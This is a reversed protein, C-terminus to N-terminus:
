GSLSSSIRARISASRLDTNSLYNRGSVSRHNSEPGGSKKFPNLEHFFRCLIFELAQFELQSRYIEQSRCENEEGEEDDPGDKLAEPDTKMFPAAETFFGPHAQFVVSSEEPIWLKM